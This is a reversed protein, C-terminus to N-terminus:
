LAGGQSMKVLRIFTTLTYEQTLLHKAYDGMTQPVYILLTFHASTWFTYKYGLSFIYTTDMDEDRM